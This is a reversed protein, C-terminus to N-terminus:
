HALVALKLVSVAAILGLLLCAGKTALIAAERLRITRIYDEWVVQLGLQMHHFTMVVLALLLAANLPRAAWAAIAPQDAGLHSLAAIVFWVTLPVLALATVREVKWHHVGAKASGLGRVRGLPSQMIGTPKAKRTTTAMKKTV